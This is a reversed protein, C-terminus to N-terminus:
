VLSSTQKHICDLSVEAEAFTPTGDFILSFHNYVIGKRKKYKGKGVPHKGGLIDRIITLDEHRVIPVINRALNSEHGLSYDMKGWRRIWETNQLEALEAIPLNLQAAARVADRRFLKDETSKLPLLKTFSNVIGPQRYNEDKKDRTELDKKYKLSNIKHSDNAAHRQFYKKWYQRDNCCVCRVTGLGEKGDAYKPDVPTWEWHKPNLNKETVKAKVSAETFLGSGDTGPAYTKRAKSNKLKIIVRGRDNREAPQLVSNIALKSNEIQEDVDELTIVSSLVALEQNNKAQEEILKIRRQKVEKELMEVKLKDYEQLLEDCKFCITQFSIFKEINRSDWLDRSQRAVLRASIVKNIELDAINIVVELNEIENAILVAERNVKDREEMPTRFTFSKMQIRKEKKEALLESRKIKMENNVVVQLEKKDLKAYLDEVFQFQEDSPLVRLLHDIGFYKLTSNNAKKNAMQSEQGNDLARRKNAGDAEANM